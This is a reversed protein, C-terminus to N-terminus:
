AEPDDRLGGESFPLNARRLLRAEERRLGNLRILQASAFLAAMGSAFLMMDAAYAAYLWAAGLACLMFYSLIKWASIRRTALDFRQRMYERDRRIRELGMDIREFRVETNDYTNEASDQTVDVLYIGELVQSCLTTM